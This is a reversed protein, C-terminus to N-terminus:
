DVFQSVKNNHKSYQYKFEPGEIVQEKFKQIQVILSWTLDDKLM